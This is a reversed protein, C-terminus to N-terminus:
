SKKTFHVVAKMILGYVTWLAGAGIGLGGALSTIEEASVSLGALPALFMILGSVGLIAGRVTNAIDGPNTSSSFVGYKSKEM